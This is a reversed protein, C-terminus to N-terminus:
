GDARKKEQGQSEPKSVTTTRPRSDTREIGKPYVEIIPFRRRRGPKECFADIDRERSLLFKLFSVGRYRCTESISLLLLYDRLRDEKLRGAAVERYYAFQKIANEANNNNWPVGDHRLFTFLKDQYKVLRVRLTEAAESRCLQTMLPKFFEAVEPEHKELYRRKLGHQDITEVIKLLLVGFPGTIAQLEEDFPNNLLEQNM